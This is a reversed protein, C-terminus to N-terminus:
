FWNRVLSTTTPTCAPVDELWVTMPFNSKLCSYNPKSIARRKFVHLVLSPSSKGSKRHGYNRGRGRTVPVALRSNAGGGQPSRQRPGRVRKTQTICAFFRLSKVWACASKSINGEWRNSSFFAQLHPLGTRSPLPLFRCLSSLLDILFSDEKRCAKPCSSVLILFPSFPTANYILKM